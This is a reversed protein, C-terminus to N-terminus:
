SSSTAIYPTYVHVTCTNYTCMGERQGDEVGKEKSRQCKEEKGKELEREVCWEGEGAGM